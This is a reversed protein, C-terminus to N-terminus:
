RNDIEKAMTSYYYRVALDTVMNYSITGATGQITLFTNNVAESVNSAVSDRYKDFFKSYAIKEARIDAPLSFYVSKYLEYDTAYLASAVYSYVYLYGSYRIYPDDSETCVLFAVFNAEDEKAIGRQHALEHAATFPITYDPFAVNINAEGTFFTYVGTIHTYSMLGSLMVPKVKSHLKQIFTYKECAKDYAELLKKNLENYNYPMVSFDDEGFGIEDIEAAAMESLYIATDYLTDKNIDVEDFDLKDALSSGRYGAAFSLTFYSFVMAAITCVSICYIGVDRWSDSYHILGYRVALFIILPLLIIIFEALSFPFINTLYAPVARFFSSIYRNFFDSFAPFLIFSIYLLACFAAICYIIKVARPIRKKETYNIDESM